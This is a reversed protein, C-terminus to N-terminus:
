SLWFLSISSPQATTTTSSLRSSATLSCPTPKRCMSVSSRSPGTAAHALTILAVLAGSLAVVRLIGHPPNDRFAFNFSLLYASLGCVALLIMSLTQVPAVSLRTPIEIGMERMRQVNEWARPSLFALLGEGLPVLQLIMVGVAALALLVFGDFHVRRGLRFALLSYGVVGLCTATTWLSQVPQHVSGVALPSVVVVVCLAFWATRELIRNLGIRM